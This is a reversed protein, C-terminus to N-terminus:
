ITEKPIKTEPQIRGYDDDNGDMNSENEAKKANM